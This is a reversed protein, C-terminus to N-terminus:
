GFNYKKLKNYFTAISINLKLAIQRKSEASNGYVALYKEILDKEANAVAEELTIGSLIEKNGNPAMISNEVIEMPLNNVDIETEEITNCIYEMRNRIERVNGPWCYNTLMTMAVNSITILKNLKKQQQEIYANVFLPIDKKRERVPPLEIIFVALRFYLDQRFLRKNIMELVDKNTAAIVRVDLNIKSQGGIKRLTKEQLVRLLKVQLSPPMETIEDLFITGGNAIEFLGKKGDKKSGTFSGEEYGFLESELLTEPLAACNIDVFPYDRRSSASHISQAIIEKGTGSEGSIFVSSDTLAAKRSLSVVSKLGSDAGIINEFSFNTQFGRANSNLPPKKSNADFIKILSGIQRFDRVVVMGGIVNDGDKIPIFDCFTEKNNAHRVTDYLPKGWKMVEPLLTKPRIEVIKRGIIEKRSQGIHKEYAKNIFIIKTDADVVIIGEQLFDAIREFWQSIEILM